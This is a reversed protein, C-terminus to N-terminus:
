RSNQIPRGARSTRMKEIQEAVTLPKQTQPAPQRAGSGVVTVTGRKREQKDDPIAATTAKTKGLWERVKNGHESYAKWPDGTLPIGQAAMEALRENELQVVLRMALPDKVIDSFESQFKDKAKDADSLWLQERVIARLDPTSQESSRNAADSSPLEPDDVADTSPRGQMMQREYAQARRLTESAEQLRRDAASEKQLTRKGAEILQDRKVKVEKGDVIITESDEPQAQINPEGEDQNDPPDIPTDDPTEKRVLEGTEENFDALDAANQAHVQQAIQAMASARAGYAPQLAEVGEPTASEQTM